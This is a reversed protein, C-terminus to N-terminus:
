VSSYSTMTPFLYRDDDVTPRWRPALRISVARQPLIGLLGLRRCWDLIEVESGLDLSLIDEHTIHESNDAEEYGDGIDLSYKELTAGLAPRIYRFQDSLASPLNEPMSGEAIQYDSFRWWMGNIAFEQM